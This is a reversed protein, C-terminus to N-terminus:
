IIDFFTLKFVMFLKSLFFNTILIFVFLTQVTSTTSKGVSETGYGARFGNTCGIIAVLYGFVISKVLSHLIDSNKLSKQAVKLFTEPDLGYELLAVLAGGLHAIIDAAITLLPLILIIAIVRPLVLKKVPDGGLARIADIQDTVKMSSIEAAFGSAIKGGVLLAIFAPGLERVMALAVLQPVQDVVGYQKMGYAFQLTIVMGVFVGVILALPISKIGAIYLQRFIEKGEFPPKFISKITKKSMLLFAGVFEFFEIGQKGLKQLM